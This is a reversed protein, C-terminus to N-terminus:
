ISWCHMLSKLRNIFFYEAFMQKDGFYRSSTKLVQRSSTKFIDEAYCNKTRASTKLVDELCRPLRRPLCFITVDSVDELRRWSMDQVRRWSMEELCRQSLNQLRRGSTKSFMLMNVPVSDIDTELLDLDTDSLNRVLLGIESLDLAFGLCIWSVNILVWCNQYENCKSDALDRAQHAQTSAHKAHKRAQRAQM